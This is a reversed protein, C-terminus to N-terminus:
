KTKINRSSKLRGTYLICKTWLTNVYMICVKFSEITRTFAETDFLRPIDTCLTLLLKTHIFSNSILDWRSFYRYRDGLVILQGLPIKIFRSYVIEESRIRGLDLKSFLYGCAMDESACPVDCSPRGLCSTFLLLIKYQLGIKRARLRKTQPRVTVRDFYGMKESTKSPNQHELSLCM